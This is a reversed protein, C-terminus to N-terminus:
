FRVLLDLRNSAHLSRQSSGSHPRLIVNVLYKPTLDRQDKFILTLIKIEVHAYFTAL